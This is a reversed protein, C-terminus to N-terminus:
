RRYAKERYGRALSLFEQRAQPSPFARQRVLLRGAFGFVFEIDGGVEEIATVVPWVRNKEQGFQRIVLYDPLLEVECTFPGGGGLKKAYAAMVLKQATMAPRANRQMLYFVTAALLLSVIVRVSPEACSLVFGLLGLLGATSVNTVLRRSRAYTVVAQRDPDSLLREGVETLDAVSFEYSVKM